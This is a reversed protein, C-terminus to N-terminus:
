GGCGADKMSERTARVNPHDESFHRLLIGLARRWNACAAARDGEDLCIHALNNYSTAFTHHDPSFHKSDSAIAREMSARAGPLDGRAKQITALNSYSAGMQPHDEGLHKREIEMSLRKYRLAEDYEGLDALVVALNNYSTAFAPHDPAFHKSGIAIAREMSARAGPLDGQDKQILAFNSYSTAFTPHDPDFHKSQIAIAREMSARAEPLDGQDQQVIALNSYHIAVVPHDPAFHKSDIAIAREMSARAGPLDGQDKQILAFNSYSTAFTPHDPDFHKAQIAIAREMSARARPLDGQVQQVMALNSYCSALEGHGIAAGILAENEPTLQLCAAAEAYRGLDHLVSALWVGVRAAPGGQGDQWLAACVQALPTLEWRVGADTLAAPNDITGGGKGDRGVVITAQRGAACAAIALLLPTRDTTDARARESVRAHWLRHLSLLKGGEGAERVVDLEALHKLAARPEWAPLDALQEVTLKLPGDERAADATLLRELWVAPVMDPPLLSAYEVARREPEPLAKIADEIVRMTRRHEQLGQADAGLEARVQLDADPLQETTLGRLAKWYDPWAIEKRLKMRAGVAAVAVALGELWGTIADATAGDPADRCGDCFRAYVARAEEKSLRGVPVMRTQAISEARTTILVRCNGGPLLGTATVAAWQAADVINDLIFLSVPGDRLGDRVFAAAAAPTADDPVGFFRGLSALQATFDAGEMSLFFTGGPYDIKREHAYLLAAVTKGYGGHGRAAAQRLAGTGGPATLAAHIARTVEPRPVINPSLPPLNSRSKTGPPAAAPTPKAADPIKDLLKSLTPDSVGPSFNGDGTLTVPAAIAAGSGSATATTAPNAVAPAPRSAATSHKRADLWGFFCAGAIGAALAWPGSEVVFEAASGAAPAHTGRAILSFGGVAGAGMCSHAMRRAWRDPHFWWAVVVVATLGLAWLKWEGDPGFRISLAIVTAVAIAVAAGGWYSAFWQIPAAGKSTPHSM